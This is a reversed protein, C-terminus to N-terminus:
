TFFLEKIFSEAYENAIDKFMRSEIRIVVHPCKYDCVNWILAQKTNQEIEFSVFTDIM